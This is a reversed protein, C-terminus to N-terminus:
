AAKDNRVAESIYLECEACNVWIFHGLWHSKAYEWVQAVM